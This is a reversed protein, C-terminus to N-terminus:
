NKIEIIANSQSWPVNLQFHGFSFRFFYIYRIVFSKWWPKFAYRFERKRWKAGRYIANRTRLYELSGKWEALADMSFEHQRDRGYPMEPLFSYLIFVQPFCPSPYVKVSFSSAMSCSAIRTSGNCKTVNVNSKHLPFLPTSFVATSFFWYNDGVRTSWFISGDRIHRRVFHYVNVSTETFGVAGM